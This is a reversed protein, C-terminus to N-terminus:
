ASEYSAVINPITKADEALRARLSMDHYTHNQIFACGGVVAPEVVLELLVSRAVEARCWQGLQAVQADEFEVPVYLTMTPLEDIWDRWNILTQHLNEQTVEALYETGLASISRRDAESLKTLAGQFREDTTQTTDEAFFVTELVHRLVGLRQHASTVTYTTALFKEKFSDM